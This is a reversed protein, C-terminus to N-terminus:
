LVYVGFKKLESALTSLPLGIVNYYDGKISKVIIAGKEQIAYAGAKDLCEGSMVYSDIEEDTLKKFFVETEVSRSIKKGTMTDIITFGTIVSHKKGNLLILMKKAEESTHPKGLFKNKFVIFTDAAIILANKYKGAVSKAKEFSLLRALKHPKLNLNLDENHNCADVKFKLGILKMLEKRRPSSSALIIKRSFEKKM